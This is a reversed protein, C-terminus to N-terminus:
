ILIQFSADGKLVLKLAYFKEIEEYEGFNREMFNACFQPSFILGPAPAAGWAWSGKVVWGREAIPLRPAAVGQGSAAAGRNHVSKFDTGGM